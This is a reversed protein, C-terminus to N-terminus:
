AAAGGSARRQFAVLSSPEAADGSLALPVVLTFSSGQGPTSEVSLSGGLRRALSHTIALGLGAGGFRLSTKANAQMFPKFLRSMEEENMGIGDDQVIIQVCAVGDREVCTASIMVVGGHTFKVANAILNQICQRVRLGDTRAVPIGANIHCAIHNNRSRAEREFSRVIERLVEGIHFDDVCLDIRGAEIKSMDLVDNIMRLLHRASDRIRNVDDFLAEDGREEADEALMEAYGIIGNLPTRFEHSTNVLFLSKAENAAEALELAELLAQDSLRLDEILREICPILDSLETPTKVHARAASEHLAGFQKLKSRRALVDSNLADAKEFLSLLAREATRAREREAALMSANRQAVEATARLVDLGSGVGRYVGCEVGVFGDSLVGSAGDFMAAHLLRLPADLEVILPKTDMLLTVSRKEFLSRGFRDAMRLAFGARTILGLPRQADDVVAVCQLGPNEAFLTYLAHGQCQATLPTECHILDRVRM